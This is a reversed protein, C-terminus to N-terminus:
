TIEASSAGLADILVRARCKPKSATSLSPRILNRIRPRISVLLGFIVTGIIEHVTNGLWDCALAVLLLSIAVLDLVLRLSFPVSM